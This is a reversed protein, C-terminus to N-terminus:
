HWTTNLIVITVIRIVSRTFFHVFIRMSSPHTWGNALVRRCVSLRGRHVKLPLHIPALAWLGVIGPCGRGFFFDFIKLHRCFITAQEAQCWFIFNGKCEQFISTWIVWISHVEDELDLSWYIHESGNLLYAISLSNTKSTCNDIFCTILNSTFFLVFGENASLNYNKHCAMSLIKAM